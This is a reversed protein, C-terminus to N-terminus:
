KLYYHIRISIMLIFILQLGFIVALSQLMSWQQSLLYFVLLLNLNTWIFFMALAAIFYLVGTIILNKMALKAEIKSALYINNSVRYISPLVFFLKIATKTWSSCKAKAM